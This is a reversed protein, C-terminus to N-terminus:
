KKRCNLRSHNCRRQWNSIAEVEYLIFSGATVVELNLGLWFKVATINNHFLLKGTLLDSTAAEVQLQSSIFLCFPCILYIMGNVNVNTWLYQKTYFCLIFCFM